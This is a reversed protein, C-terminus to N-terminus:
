TISRNTALGHGKQARTRRVPARNPLLDQRGGAFQGRFDHKGDGDTVFVKRAPAFSGSPQVAGDAFSIEM